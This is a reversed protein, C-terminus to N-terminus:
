CQITSPQHSFTRKYVLPLFLILHACYLSFRRRVLLRPDIKKEMGPSYTMSSYFTVDDLKKM